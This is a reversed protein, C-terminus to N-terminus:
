SVSPQAGKTAPPPAPSQPAVSGDGQNAPPPDSPPRGKFAALTTLAPGNEDSRITVDLRTLDPDDTKQFKAEWHWTRSALDIHGKRTADTPWPETALLSENIKNLAAWSAFTQDRLIGMSNVSHTATSIIAGMAIALVALAVVVELLTFGAQPKM